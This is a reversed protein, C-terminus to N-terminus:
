QLLKRAETTIWTRFSEDLDDWSRDLHGRLTEAGVDGGNAVTDLYARFGEANRGGEGDILFRVFLASLDYHRRSQDSRVFADWDLSLLTRLPPLKGERNA